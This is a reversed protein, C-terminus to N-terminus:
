NHVLRRFIPESNHVKHGPAQPSSRSHRLSAVGKQLGRFGDGKLRPSKRHHACTLLGDFGALGGLALGM